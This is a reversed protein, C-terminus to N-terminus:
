VAVRNRGGEKARYLAADAAQLVQEPAAGDLPYVAGGFSATIRLGESWASGRLEEVPRRLREGVEGLEERGMGPLLVM